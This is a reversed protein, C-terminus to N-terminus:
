EEQGLDFFDEPNEEMAALREAEGIIDEIAGVEEESHDGHAKVYDEAAVRCLDNYILELPVLYVHSQNGLGWNGSSRARWRACLPYGEKGEYRWEGWAVRIHNKHPTPEDSWARRPYAAFNTQQADSHGWYVAFDYQSFTQDGGEEADQVGKLDKKFEVRVRNEDQLVGGEVISSAGKVMLADVTTRTSLSIWTSGNTNWRHGNFVTFAQVVDQEMRPITARGFYEQMVKLKLGSLQRKQENTFGIVNGGGSAECILNLTRRINAWIAKMFNYYSGM